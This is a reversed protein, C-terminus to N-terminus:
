KALYKKSVHTETKRKGRVLWFEGCSCREMIAAQYEHSVPLKQCIHVETVVAKHLGIKCLIKRM